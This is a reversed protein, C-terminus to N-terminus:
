FIIKYIREFDEPNFQTFVEDSQSYNKEHDRIEHDRIEHDRIEHDRIEASLKVPSNVLNLASSYLIVAVDM